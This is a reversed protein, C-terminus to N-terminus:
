SCAQTHKRLMASIVFTEDLRRCALMLEFKSSVIVRSRQLHQGPVQCSYKGDDWEQLNHVRLNYANGRGEISVRDQSWVRRDTAIIRTENLWFVILGSAIVYVYGILVEDSPKPLPLGYVVKWLHPLVQRMM